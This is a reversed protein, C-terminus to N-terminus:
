GNVQGARIKMLEQTAASLGQRRRGIECVGSSEGGHARELSAAADLPCPDTVGPTNVPVETVDPRGADARLLALLM